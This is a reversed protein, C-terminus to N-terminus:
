DPCEESSDAHNGTTRLLPNLSFLPYVPTSKAHFNQNINTYISYNRTDAKSSLFYNWDQGHFLWVHPEISVALAQMKFTPM